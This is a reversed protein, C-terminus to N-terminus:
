EGNVPAVAEPDVGAGFADARGVPANLLQQMNFGTTVDASGPQVLEDARTQAGTLPVVAGALQLLKAQGLGQYPPRLLAAADSGALPDVVAAGAGGQAYLRIEQSAYFALKDAGANTFRVGDSRRMQVVQGNVDPGSDAYNGEEDLFKDYIDVFEAGSAFVSLRELASIQAMAASFQPAAMPPLGIWIVPKNALRLQNLFDNLRQSYQKTWDDTLSKVGKGDIIMQQRDNIGMMIVAVDFNNATIQQRITKGWDFYDPRTFGSPGVAQQLVAITPDNAYLRDLAKGVDGALTDGFVAVRTAGDAKPISPKAPPLRPPQPKVVVPPPVVVPQDGSNDRPGFLMDLLSRRRPPQQQQQGGQQAPQAQQQQRGFTFLGQGLVTNPLLESSAVIVILLVLLVRRM